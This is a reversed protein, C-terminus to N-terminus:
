PDNTKEPLREQQEWLWTLAQRPTIADLDLDRLAAAFQEAPTLPPAEPPDAQEHWRQDEEAILREAEAVARLRPPAEALLLEARDAVWSPLGALRAVQIGYARDAPGPQVAYLFVVRGERELAAVHVNTM